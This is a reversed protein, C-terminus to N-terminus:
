LSGNIGGWAVDSPHFYSTGGLPVTHCWLCDEASDTDACLCSVGHDKAEFLLTDAM